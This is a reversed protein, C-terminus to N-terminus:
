AVFSTHVFYLNTLGNIFRSLSMNARQMNIAEKPIKNRACISKLQENEFCM